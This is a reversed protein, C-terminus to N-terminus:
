YGGKAIARATSENKTVNNTAVTNANFNKAANDNNGGTVVINNTGGSSTSSNGKLNNLLDLKSSTTGTNVAIASLIELANILIEETSNDPTTKIYNSINNSNSTSSLLDSTSVSAGFGGTMSNRANTTAKTIRRRNRNSINASGFGGTKKIGRGAGGTSASATLGYDLYKSMAKSINPGWQRDINKGAADTFAYGIKAGGGLGSIDLLSHENRKKYYKENLAYTYGDFAEAVSSWQKANGSPNVNTAGWGWLNYKRKAINSTGLGSEQTAIGLLALASIGYKDQAAKIAAADSVKVVSDKGALRTSIIKEISYQDLMPLKKIDTKHLVDAPTSPIKQGSSVATPFGTAESGGVNMTAEGSVENGATPNIIPNIVSSFDTNSTDGGLLRNGAETALGSLLSSIKSMKSENQMSGSTSTTTAGGSTASSAIGSVDSSVSSADTMNADVTVDTSGWGLIGQDGVQRIKLAVQGGNREIANGGSTNGEITYVTSGNVGVVVGAHSCKYFIVDGPKPTQGPQLWKGAAKFKSVNAGCSATTAGYTTNSALAKDGGAAQLFVWTVFTACWHQGNAHGVDRAYKTFNKSGGGTKVDLNQANDKEMYGLENKAIAIIKSSTIGGRGGKILDYKAQGMQKLYPDMNGVSWASITNGNLKEPSVAKSYNKGRPDNILINGSKDQGVAVVYHGANTYTSGGKGLLVVPNGAAVGRSIDFGSPNNIQSTSLGSMTAAQGIFKSNTGTEDRNGTVKAMNAMQLPTVEQRAKATNVAMAMATPGCGANAMTADDAGMNYAKGAWRPDNQSFYSAGNVVDGFGGYKISRKTGKGFGGTGSGGSSGGSLWKTFNSWANKAADMGKSFTDKAKQGLNKLGNSLTTDKVNAEGETLLGSAIMQEIDSKPVNERIVDGLPNYYTYSDGIKVYYSGDNYYWATKKTKAGFLGGIMGLINGGASKVKNFFGSVTEGVKSAVDNFLGAVKSIKDKLLGITTTFQTGLRQEKPVEGKVLLGSSIMGNVTESDIGEGILDGSATYHNYSEGTQTYYSGDSDIWCVNTLSKFMTGAINKLQNFGEGALKGLPSNALAEAGETLGKWAGSLVNTVKNWAGSIMERGKDLIKEGTSKDVKYTGPKLQGSAVMLQLKTSDVSDDPIEDGSATYHKGDPTYYSGDVDYFCKRDKSFLKDIGHGILTGVPGLVSGIVAGKNKSFFGPLKSAGEKLKKWAGGLVDSVTDWAKGLGEKAKDISEEFKSKEMTYTGKILQGSNVKYQLQTKEIKDLKTGNATYHQGDVDYFSGDADYFVDKERSFIKDLGSFKMYAKAAGKAVGGISNVVNGIKGPVSGVAKAVKGAVGAIKAGFGSKKNETMQSVDVSEASVYGLDSGDAGTVQYTGDQNKKYTNGKDDTYSTEGNWFKGFRYAAGKVTRGVVTAAKDMISGNKETNWDQFSKYSAKYTGNKVGEVFQDYTVDPGIIGAKKQTEYQQQLKGDRQELYASQWESQANDLAKAKESDAGVLVKYLGVAMSHLLDVGMAGGVLSLIVDVISGLTTGTILGFVSAILKMNGDVKDPAVQFLKATGSLGNLASLSAFAVKTLGATVVAGTVHAGTVASIKAAMKEALKDWHSKLAGIIATPGYKFVKESAEQGTKKAFKETILDFFKQIYKCVKSLLGDGKEAKQAILKGIDDGVGSVKNMAKTVIGDKGVTIDDYLGEIGTAGREYLYRANELAEGTKMVQTTTSKSFLANKVAGGIGGALKKVVNAGGKSLKKIIPNKVAGKVINAALKLISETNHTADGMDDTFVNGKKIENIERQMEQDSSNGNTRTANEQTWNYDHVADGVTGGVFTGITSAIGAIGSILGNMLSPFNKMLWSGIILAGATILGKKSFIADWGKKFKNVSEGNSNTAKIMDERYKKEEEKEKQEEKEKRLENATKAEDLAKKQNDSAIDNRAEVVIKAAEAVAAQQEASTKAAGVAANANEMRNERNEDSAAEDYDVPQESSKSFFSSFRRRGSKVAKTAAKTAKNSLVEVGKKGVNILEAGKEGVLSLGTKILGGISHQEVNEGSEMAADQVDEVEDDEETPEESGTLDILKLYARTDHQKIYKRAAATDKDYKGGTASMILKDIKSATFYKFMHKVHKVTELGGVTKKVGRTVKNVSRVVDNGLQSGVTPASTERGNSGEVSNAIRTRLEDNTTNEDFSIGRAEAEKRLDDTKMGNLAGMVNQAQATNNVAKSEGKINAIITQVADSINKLFYTQKGEDTLKNPNAKSLEEVTMSARVDASEGKLKAYARPDNMRLWKRAQESDEGFQGKTAKRIVKANANLEKDSEYQAKIEEKRKNYDANNLKMRESLTGYLGGREAMAQRFNEAWTTGNLRGKIREGITKDGVKIGTIKKAAWKTAKGVGALLKFPMKLINFIGKFLMQIGSKIGTKILTGVDKIFGKVVKVPLFNNFKEALNFTKITATIIAGPAKAATALASYVTHVGKSLINGIGETVPSFLDALTNKISMGLGLFFKGTKQALSAAWGGLKDAVFEAAFGVPALIKHELVNLADSIMFKFETKLPGLINANITNGIIGFIGQKKVKEGDGLDLGDEKGFFFEKLNKGQSAIGLSLGAIAGVVPGGMLLGVAGGAAAGTASMGIAQMGQEGIELTNKDSGGFHSSWADAIANKLGKQGKEPNGLWFDQFMQSKTLIGGALGMIAGGVPGGVLTGLLGGGTLMGVGAGVATSGILHDKNDKFFKQTQQSIIGKSIENGEEDVEGFMWKQFKESRSLFGGIAGIGAGVFPGGIVSGLFGGMSIGVGAGIAAGTAGADANNKLFGIVEKAKNKGEEIHEKTNEDGFFAKTWGTIGSTFLDKAKDFLSPGEANDDKVYKGTEPDKVKGFIKLMIGDKISSGISKFNTKVQDITNNFFGRVDNYLDSLIGGKRKNTEEDKEGFFFLKARNTIDSFTKEIYSAADGFLGKIDGTFLSKTANIAAKSTGKITGVLKDVNDGTTQKSRRFGERIDSGFQQLREGITGNYGTRAYPLNSYGQEMVAQEHADFDANSWAKKASKLRKNKGKTQAYKGYGLIKDMADDIEMGNFLSHDLHNVTRADTMREVADKREAQARFRANDIDSISKSDTAYMKMAYDILNEKVSSHAGLSNMIEILVPFSVTRNEREIKLFLEQITREYEDRTKKYKDMAKKDNVNEPMKLDTVIKSINEGFKSEAFASNISLQLEQALNMNMKDRNMYRGTNEDFFEEQDRMQKLANKNGKSAIVKLLATQERLEKTIIETIAHKTEGDFPTAKKDIDAKKFSKIKDNRAGFSEGVFRKIGSIFDNGQTDALDGIKSLLRPMAHSFTTELTQLTTVFMKPMIYSILMETGMGLPNSVLQDLMMDNDLLGAVMGATTKSFAKKMNQKVYDKYSKLNIGGNKNGMIDAVTLKQNTPKEEETLRGMKEYYALSSEIFKTMNENNFSNISSLESSINSLHNLIEAHNKAIQHMTTSQVAIFADMSAKQMKIQAVQGRQVQDSLKVVAESTGTNQYVNYTNGGDGGDDGFSTGDGDMDGFGMSAMLAEDARDENNFNGSKIDTLANKYAKEAYQVYRNGRITDSVKNISSLNQRTSTVFDRGIEAGSTVTDFINPTIDKIVNKTSIGISKMANQLWRTNISKNSMKLFNAKSGNKAM